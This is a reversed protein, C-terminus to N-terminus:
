DLIKLMLMLILFTVLFFLIGCNFLNSIGAYWIGSYIIGEIAIFHVKIFFGTQEMPELSM